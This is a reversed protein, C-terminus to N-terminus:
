AVSGTAACFNCVPFRERRRCHHLISHNVNRSDGTTLVSGPKPTSAFAPAAAGWIEDFDIGRLSYIANFWPLSGSLYRGTGLDFLYKRGTPYMEQTTERSLPHILM